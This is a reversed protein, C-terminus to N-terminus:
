LCYKGFAKIEHGFAAATASATASLPDHSSLISALILGGVALPRRPLPERSLGALVVRKAVAQAEATTAV